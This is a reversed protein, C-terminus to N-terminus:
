RRKKGTAASVGDLAEDITQQNVDEPSEPNFLLEGRADVEMDYKRTKQRPIKSHCEFDVSAHTCIGSSQLAPKVKVKLTVEREGEEGPRDVCDKVAKKLEHQFAAAAQGSDLGTLAELTLRQKAM